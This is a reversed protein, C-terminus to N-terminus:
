KLCKNLQTHPFPHACWRVTRAQQCLACLLEAARLMTRGSEIEIQVITRRRQPLLHRPAHFRRRQGLCLLLFLLARSHLLRSETFQVCIQLSCAWRYGTGFSEFHGCTLDDDMGIV